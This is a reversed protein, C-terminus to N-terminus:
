LFTPSSPKGCSWFIDLNHISRRDTVNIHAILNGENDLYTADNDM